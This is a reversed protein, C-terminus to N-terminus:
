SLTRAAFLNDFNTNHCPLKNWVRELFPAERVHRIRPANPPSQRKTVQGSIFIARRCRIGDDLTICLFLNYCWCAVVAGALGDEDDDKKL